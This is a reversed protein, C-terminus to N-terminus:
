VNKFVERMKAAIRRERDTQENGSSVPTGARRKSPKQSIGRNRKKAEKKITQRVATERFNASVADHAAVMAEKFNLNQGQGHAGTLILDAMDLMQNRTAIQEQTLPKESGGYLKRFPKIEESDFFTNIRASIADQETQEVKRISTQLGPLVANIANIVNNVPAVMDELFEQEGYKEQMQRLDIPQVTQPLQMQAPAQPSAPVQPQQPQNQNRLSQGAQAWRAIEANRKEHVGIAFENFKLGLAEAQEDIWEDSYGYAKLSRRHSDPITLGSVAEETSSEEGGETDEVEQVEDVEDTDVIEEADDQDEAVDDTPEGTADEAESEDVKTLPGDYNEDTANMAAMQDALKSELADRDFKPEKAPTDGIGRQEVIENVNQQAVQAQNDLM